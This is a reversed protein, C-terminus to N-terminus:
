KFSELLKIQRIDKGVFRMFTFLSLFRSVLRESYREELEEVSLNTNIITAKNRNCRTNVLNYIVSLNFQSIFETGLDDLILLDVDLLTELTNDNEVKGFHEAEITRLFDQTSGYAVMYGKEIVRKAISLSLHTKGLGTGGAMFIGKSNENFKDAYKICFDYIDSMLEFPVTNSEEDKEKSYYRLKFDSFDSLKLASTSNIKDINVNKIVTELCKCRKNEVYGTDNCIGCIHKVELYDEPYGNTKLLKKEMDQLAINATKIEEIGSSIDKQKSIILKSLKVSTLALEKRIDIIQPLKEYMEEIKRAQEIESKLRRGELIKLAKDLIDNKM